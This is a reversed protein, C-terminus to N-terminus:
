IKLNKIKLVKHVTSMFLTRSCHEHVINMFLTWSCHGLCHSLVTCQTLISDLTCNACESGAQTCEACVSRGPRACEACANRRPRACLM